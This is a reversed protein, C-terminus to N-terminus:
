QNKVLPLGSTFKELRKVAEKLNDLSTTYAFRIYKEAQNNGFDLGPTIAVGVQELCQEAFDFSNNTLAECNAYIYFAGDPKVPITFGLKPLAELLYDRRTKFENRRQELIKITDPEFAALAAYQGPTSAALFINQALNDVVSIFNEPVVLWGVRWGTMSFYKSFSNIVFVNDSLSLATSPEVDYVLGQYIEDVLVAAQKQEALQIIDKLSESPIMTGTPNSPSALLVGAVDNNWHQELLAKNLQFQTTVDVNILQSKGELLSVFNRNCPYGPDAMLVSQGAELIAALALMLAGSAGPTVVIREPSITVKFKDLYFTAIAERLAPLGMPPTYHVDGKKIAAVGADIIPQPTNFDPEGVEMHIIHKGQAELEKARALLKMVHFPQMAQARKSIIPKSTRSKLIIPKSIKPM